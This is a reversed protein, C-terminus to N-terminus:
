HNFDWNRRLFLLQIVLYVNKLCFVPESVTIRKRGRTLRGVLCSNIESASTVNNVIQSFIIIIIANIVIPDVIDSLSECIVSSTRVSLSPPCPLCFLFHTLNYSNTGNKKAARITLLLEHFALLVSFWYHILTKKVSGSCCIISSTFSVFLITFLITWLVNVFWYEAKRGVPGLTCYFDHLNTQLLFPKSGPPCIGGGAWHRWWTVVSACLMNCGLQLWPCSNREKNPKMM